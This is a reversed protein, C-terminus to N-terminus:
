NTLPCKPQKWTKAFLQFYQKIFMPTLGSVNITWSLSNKYICKSPRELNICLIKRIGLSVEKQEKRTLVRFHLRETTDSEKRVTSQLGGLEETWPIRWALISSHPAM